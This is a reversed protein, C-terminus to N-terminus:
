QAMAVLQISEPAAVRSWPQLLAVAHDVSLPLAIEEPPAPSIKLESANAQLALAQSIVHSFQYTMITELDVTTKLWHLSMRSMILPQPLDAQLPAAPEFGLPAETEGSNALNQAAIVALTTVAVLSVQSVRM